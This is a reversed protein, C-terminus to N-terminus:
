SRSSCGGGGCGGSGCGGRPKGADASAVSGCTSAPEPAIFLFGQQNEDLQGFDITFGNLMDRSATGILIPVGKEEFFQDGERQEDFGLAFQWEGSPAVRAAIRVALEEGSEELALNIQRAAAPTLEIM